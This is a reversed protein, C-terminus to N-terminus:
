IRVPGDLRFSVLTFPRFSLFCLYSFMRNMVFDTDAKKTLLKRMLYEDVTDWKSKNLAADKFHKTVDTPLMKLDKKASSVAGM